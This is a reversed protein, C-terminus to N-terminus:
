LAESRWIHIGIEVVTELAALKAAPAQQSNEAAWIYPMASNGIEFALWLEVSNSEERDYADKSSDKWISTLM